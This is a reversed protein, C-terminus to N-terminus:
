TNGRVMDRGGERKDLFRRVKPKIQSGTLELPPWSWGARDLTIDQLFHWKCRVHQLESNGLPTLSSNLM